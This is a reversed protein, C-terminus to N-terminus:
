YSESKSWIDYVSGGTLKGEAWECLAKDIKVILMEEKFSLRINSGRKAYLDYLIYAITENINKM